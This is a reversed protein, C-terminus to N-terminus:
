PDESPYLLEVTCVLPLGDGDANLMDQTREAWAWAAPTDKPFPGVIRRSRVEPDYVVVVLYNAERVDVEASLGQMDALLRKMEAAVAPDLPAM